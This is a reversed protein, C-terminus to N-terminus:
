DHWGQQYSRVALGYAAIESLVIALLSANVIEWGTAIFPLVVGAVIVGGVLVFYGVRQARREIARDREDAPMSADERARSRLILRGTLLIVVQAVATAGFRALQPLDPMAGTPPDIMTLMFYPGYTLAIAAISLWAIKERYPM